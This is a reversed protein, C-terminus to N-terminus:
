GPPPDAVLTPTRPVRRAGRAVPVATVALMGATVLLVGSAGAALAVLGVAGPIVAQGLRNGTVRLSLATARVDPRAADALWSLTLPQGIGLGLGSLMVVAALVWIPVPLVVAGLASASLVLSWLLLRQRGLRDSLVGLFLRSLMGAASRLMLLLGVVTASLSNEAGVAPLYVTVVDITALVVTSVVIAQTLGPMRVVERVPVRVDAATRRPPSRPPALLVACVLAVVAIGVAAWFIPGTRPIAGGGGLAAIVAPGILHGVAAAFTFHGFARDMRESPTRDAVLSQLSLAAFLHGTGLVASGALLGALSTGLVAFALAAALLLVGAALLLPRQGRVDTIKGAPVALVLPLAAFAFSLVGLWATPVGLELARYSAAPRLVFVLGMVATTTVLLVPFWRRKM